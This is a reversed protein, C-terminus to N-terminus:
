EGYKKHFSKVMSMLKKDGHAKPHITFGSPSGTKRDDGMEYHATVHPDKTAKGDDDHHVAHGAAKIHAHIKNIHEYSDDDPDGHVEMAAEAITGSRLGAVTGKRVQESIFQTYKDINSM